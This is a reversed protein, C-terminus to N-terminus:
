VLIGHISLSSGDGQCPIFCKFLFLCVASSSSYLPPPYFYLLMSPVPNRLLLQRLLLLHCKSALTNEGTHAEGALLVFTHSPTFYSGHLVHAPLM